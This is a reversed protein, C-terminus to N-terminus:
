FGAKLSNIMSLLTQANKPSSSTLASAIRPDSGFMRSLQEVIGKPLNKGTRVTNELAKKLLKKAERETYTGAAAAANALRKAARQANTAVRLSANRAANQAARTAKAAAANATAKKAANALAKQAAAASNNAAKKAAAAAQRAVSEAANRAKNAATREAFKKVRNTAVQEAKQAAATRQAVNWGKKAAALAKASAAANVALTGTMAGVSALGGAAMLGFGKLTGVGFAKRAKNPTNLNAVTGKRLANLFPGENVSFGKRRWNNMTAKEEATAPATAPKNNKKAPAVSGSQGAAEVTNIMQPVFKKIAEPPVGQEALKAAVVAGIKAKAAATLATVGGTQVIGYVTAAAAAAKAIEARYKWGLQGAGITKQIIAARLGQGRKNNENTARLLKNFNTKSMTGLNNREALRSRNGTRNTYPPSIKLMLRIYRIITQNRENRTATSNENLANWNMRNMIYGKTRNPATGSSKLVKWAAEHPPLTGNFIKRVNNSIVGVRNKVIGTNKFKYLNGIRAARETVKEIAKATIKKAANNANANEAAKKAAANANAAAKAANANGANAAAKAVNANSNPGSGTNVKQEAQITKILANLKGSNVGARKQLELFHKQNVLRQLAKQRAINGTKVALKMFERMAPTVKPTVVKKGDSRRTKIRYEENIANNMQAITVPTNKNAHTAFIKNYVAARNNNSIHYTRNIKKTLLERRNPLNQLLAGVVNTANLAVNAGLKRKAHAFVLENMSNRITTSSM